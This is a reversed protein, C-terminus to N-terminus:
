ECDPKAPVGEKYLFTTRKKGCQSHNEELKGVPQLRVGPMLVAVVVTLQGLPENVSCVSAVPLATYSKQDYRTARRTCHLRGLRFYNLIAFRTPTVLNFHCVIDM